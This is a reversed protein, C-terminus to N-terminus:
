GGEHAALSSVKVRVTLLFGWGRELDTGLWRSTVLFQRSRWSYVIQSAESQQLQSTTVSTYYSLIIFRTQIETRQQVHFSHLSGPTREICVREEIAPFFYFTLASGCCSPTNPYQPIVFTSLGGYRRFISRVNKTWRIRGSYRSPSCGGEVKM